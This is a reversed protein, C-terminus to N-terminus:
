GPLAPGGALPRIGCSICLPLTKMSAATSRGFCISKLCSTVGVRHRTLQEVRLGVKDRFRIKSALASYKKIETVKGTSVDNIAKQLPKYKMKATFGERCLMNM